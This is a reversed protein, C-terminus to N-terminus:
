GMQAMTGIGNLTLNFGLRCVNDNFIGQGRWESPEEDENLAAKVKTAWIGLVCNVDVKVRDSLGPVRLFYGPHKLFYQFAAAIIANDFAPM